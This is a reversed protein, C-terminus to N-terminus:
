LWTFKMEEFEPKQMQTVYPTTRYVLSIHSPWKVYNKATKDALRTFDWGTERGTEEQILLTSWSNNIHLISLPCLQLTQEQDRLSNM